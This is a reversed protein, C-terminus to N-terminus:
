GSSKSQKQNEPVLKQNKDSPDLVPETVVPSRGTNLFVKFLGLTSDTALRRPGEEAM